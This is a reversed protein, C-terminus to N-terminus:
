SLVSSLLFFLFFVFVTFSGLKIKVFHMSDSALWAFNTKHMVKDMMREM